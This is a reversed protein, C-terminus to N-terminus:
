ATFDQVAPGTVERPRLEPLTESEIVVPAVGTRGLPAAKVSYRAGFNV